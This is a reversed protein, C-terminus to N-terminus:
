LSFPNRKGKPLAMDAWKPERQLDVLILNLLYSPLDSTLPQLINVLLEIQAIKNAVMYM